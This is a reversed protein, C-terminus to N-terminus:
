FSFPIKFRLMGSRNKVGLSLQMPDEREQPIEFLLARLEHTKMSECQDETLLPQPTATQVLSDDVGRNDAPLDLCPRSADIADASLPALAPLFGIIGLWRV